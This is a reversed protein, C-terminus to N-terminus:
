PIVNLISLWLARYSGLGEMSFEAHYNPQGSKTARALTRQRSRYSGRQFRQTQAGFSQVGILKARRDIAVQAKGPMIAIFVHAPDRTDSLAKRAV